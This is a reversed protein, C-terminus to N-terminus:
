KRREFPILRYEKKGDSIEETITWHGNNHEPTSIKMIIEDKVWLGACVDRGNEYYSSCQWTDGYSHYCHRMTAGCVPCHLRGSFFYTKTKRSEALANAKEWDDCSVIAKHHNEIYYQAQEGHNTVQKGTDDIFTKQLLCDGKYKENRIINIIRDSKWISRRNTETPIGSRNLEEAIDKPLVGDLYRKYIQRVIDAQAKNEEWTGDAGETYGYVRCPNLAPNGLEYKKHIAWRVNSCVQKHEEEAVTAYVSLLLECTGSMSDLNEKEFFVRVGCARLETISKLFLITNRAFRSISKTYIEDIKGNRADDMMENFGPRDSRSGSLGKDAYIGTFVTGPMESLLKTYYDLQSEFSTNQEEHGTSVRAYACVRKLRKPKPFPIIETVTKINSM